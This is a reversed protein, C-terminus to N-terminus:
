FTPKLSESYFLDGTRSFVFVLLEINKDEKNSPFTAVVPRFRSMTFSEGLHFSTIGGELSFATEPHIRISGQSKQLVFVYGSAKKGDDRNNVLNFNIKVQGQSFSTKLNETLILQSKRLDQAGPVPNFFSLEIGTKSIGSKLKSLLEQNESRLNSVSEELALSNEKLSKIVEPEKSKIQLTLTKFYIGLSATILLSLTVVIPVSVVFLKLQRKSLEFCKAPKQDQYVVLTINKSPKYLM